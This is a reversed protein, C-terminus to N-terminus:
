SSPTFRIASLHYRRAADTLADATPAGPTNIRIGIMLQAAKVGLQDIARAYVSAAAAPEEILEGHMATVRGDLVVDAERGGRFNARWRAGTLAYLGGDLRHATVPIEYRRGSKRGRFRLVMFQRRLPGGVPSRLLLRLVPNGARILLAPPHAAEVPARPGAV